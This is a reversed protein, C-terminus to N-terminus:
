IQLVLDFLPRGIWRCLHVYDDLNQIGDRLRSRGYSDNLDSRM